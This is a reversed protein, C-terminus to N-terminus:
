CALVEIGRRIAVAADPICDAPNDAQCGSAVHRHVANGIFDVTHAGGGDGRVTSCPDRVSHCEMPEDDRGGAVACQQRRPLMQRDFTSGSLEYQCWSEVHTGARFLVLYYEFRETRAIGFPGSPQGAFM